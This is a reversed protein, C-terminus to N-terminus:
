YIREQLSGHKKEKIDKEAKLKQAILDINSCVQKFNYEIETNPYRLIEFGINKLENERTIDHEGSEQTHHWKGDLEVILGAKACYFDVIYNGITKQKQFRLPYNKLFCYWLKREWPTMNSRLNKALPINARNYQKM